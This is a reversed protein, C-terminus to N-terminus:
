ISLEMKQGKYDIIIKGDHIEEVTMDGFSQGVTLYYTRQNKKDEIVAQPTPELMIGVLNINKFLEGAIDAAVPDITGSGASQSIFLKKSKFIQEFGEYNSLVDKSEELLKSTFAADSEPLKIKKLGYYPYLLASIFYIAELIFIISIINKLREFNIFDNLIYSIPFKLPNKKGTPNVAPSSSNAAKSLEAM